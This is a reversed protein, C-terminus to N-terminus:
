LDDSSVSSKKKGNNVLSTIGSQYGSYGDEPKPYKGNKMTEANKMGTRGDTSQEKLSM